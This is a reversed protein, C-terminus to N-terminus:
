QAQEVERGRRGRAEFLNGEGVLHLAGVILLVNSASGAIRQVITDAWIENRRGFACTWLEPDRVM